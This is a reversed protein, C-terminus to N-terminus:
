ASHRALFHCTYFMKLWQNSEGARSSWLVARDIRGARRTSKTTTIVFWHKIYCLAMCLVSDGRKCLLVSSMFSCCSFFCNAEADVPFPPRISLRYLAPKWHPLDPTLIGVSDLWHMVLSISAMGDLGASAMLLIPSIPSTPETDPYHSQTAYWPRNELHSPSPSCVYVINCQKNAPIM